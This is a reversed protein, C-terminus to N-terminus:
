IEIKFYILTLKLLNKGNKKYALHIQYESRAKSTDYIDNVENMLLYTM